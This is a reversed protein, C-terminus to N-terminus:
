TKNGQLTMGTHCCQIFTTMPDWQQSIVESTSLEFLCVLIVIIPKDSNYTDFLPFIISYKHLYDLKLQGVWYIRISM